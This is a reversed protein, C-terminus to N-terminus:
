GDAPASALWPLHQRLWADVGPIALIRTVAAAVGLAQAILPVDDVGAALAITPLLSLLGIVAAFITRLTARWPHRTQTTHTM